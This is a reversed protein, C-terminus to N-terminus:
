KQSRAADPQEMAKAAETREASSQLLFLLPSQSISSGRGGLSLIKQWAEDPIEATKRATEFYVEGAKWANTKSCFTFSHRHKFAIGAACKLIEVPSNRSLVDLLSQFNKNKEGDQTHKQAEIIGARTIAEIAIKKQQEDGISLDVGRLEKFYAALARHDNIKSLSVVGDLLLNVKDAEDVSSELISNSYLSVGEIDGMTLLSELADTLINQKVDSDLASQFITNIYLVVSAKNRQKFALALASDGELNKITLLKRQIVKNLQLVAKLYVSLIHCNKNMMVSHLGSMGRNTQALLLYGKSEDSIHLQAVGHIYSATANFQGNELAAVLGLEGSVSAAALLGVIEESDEPELVLLSNLYATIAHGRGNKLAFYLDSSGDEARVDLFEKIDLHEQRIVRIYASMVQQNGTLLAFKLGATIVAKKSEASLTSGLIAQIYGVSTNQHGNKLALYLGLEGRPGPTLLIDKKDYESLFNSNLVATVYSVVAYSHGNALAAAFGAVIILEKIDDPSLGSSCVTHVYVKVAQGYGQELVTALAEKAAFLHKICRMDLGSALVAEMYAAVANFHGKELALGLVDPKLLCEILTLDNLKSIGEIYAKVSHANNLEMAYHLGPRGHKSAALLVSKREVTSLNLRLIGEIYATVTKAYGKILAYSLLYCQAVDEILLLKKAQESLNSSIIDNFFIEVTKFRGNTMAQALGSDGESTCAHLLKVKDAEDFNSHLIGDVYVTVTDTGGKKMVFNFVPNGMPDESILLQLAASYTLGASLVKKIYVALAQAHKNQAAINLGPTGDAAKAILLQYLDAKDLDAELIGDIYNAIAQHHGNKLAMHLGPMGNSTKAALVYADSGRYTNQVDLSAFDGLM